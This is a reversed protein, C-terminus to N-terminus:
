QRTARKALLKAYRPSASAHREALAIIEAQRDPDTIGFFARVLLNTEEATPEAAPGAEENAGNM